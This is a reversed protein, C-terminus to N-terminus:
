LRLFLEMQLQRKDQNFLLFHLPIHHDRLLLIPEQFLLDRLMQTLKITFGLILILKLLTMRKTM